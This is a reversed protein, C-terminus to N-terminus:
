SKKSNTNSKKAVTKKNKPNLVRVNSKVPEEAIKRISAYLQGDLLLNAIKLIESIQAIDVSKKMGEQASVKVSFENVKM